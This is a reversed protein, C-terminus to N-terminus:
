VVTKSSMKISKKLNDYDNIAFTSFRYMKKGAGQGSTDENSNNTQQEIQKERKSSDGIASIKPSNVNLEKSFKASNVNFTYKDLFKSEVKERTNTM